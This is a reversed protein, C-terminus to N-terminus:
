LTIELIRAACRATADLGMISSLCQRANGDGVVRYDFSRFDYDEDRGCISLKLYEIEAVKISARNAWEILATPTCM